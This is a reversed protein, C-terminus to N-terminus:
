KSASAPTYGGNPFFPQTAHQASITNRWPIGRYGESLSMNENVNLLFWNGNLILNTMVILLACTCVMGITMTYRAYWLWYERMTVIYTM